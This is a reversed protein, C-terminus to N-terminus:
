SRKKKTYVRPTSDGDNTRDRTRSWELLGFSELVNDNVYWHMKVDADRREKQAMSLIKVELQRKSIAVTETESSKPSVQNSDNIIDASSSMENSTRKPSDLQSVDEASPIASVSESDLDANLGSGNQKRYWFDKFEEILKQLSNTSGHICKIM